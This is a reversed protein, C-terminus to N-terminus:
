AAEGYKGAQDGWSTWNKRDTQSFLELYPGDFLDEILPYMEDPKRSHERRITAVIAGIDLLNEPVDGTLLCNRTSRNKIAPEGHTGVLFLEATGRLIFGTGFAQKGGSTLKTWPGGTKYKFGWCAMLDLAEQLMPFVAWMICVSNPATAFVIQDRMAKLEDLTMCDYHAQPSKEYGKESYM